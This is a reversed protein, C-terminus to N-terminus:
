LVGRSCCLVNSINPKFCPRLFQHFVQLCERPEDDFLDTDTAILGLSTVVTGAISDATLSGDFSATYTWDNVSSYSLSVDLALDGQFNSSVAETLQVSQQVKMGLSADFTIAVEGIMFKRRKTDMTMPLRVEYEALLADITLTSSDFTDEPLLSIEPSLSALDLDTGTFSGSLVLELAFRYPLDGEELDDTTELQCEMSLEPPVTGIVGDLKSLLHTEVDLATTVNIWENREISDGVLPVFIDDRFNVLDNISLQAIPGLGIDDIGSIIHTTFTSEVDDLAEQFYPNFTEPLVCNQGQASPIATTLALLITLARGKNNSPSAPKPNNRDVQWSIVNNPGLYHFHSSAKSM